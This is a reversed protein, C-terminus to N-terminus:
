LMDTLVSAVTERLRRNGEEHKDEHEPENGSNKEVDMRFPNPIINKCIMEKM